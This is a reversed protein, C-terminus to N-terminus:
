KLCTQLIPRLTGGESRLVFTGLGPARQRGLWCNPTQTPKRRAAVSWTASAACRAMDRSASSTSKASSASSCFRSRPAVPAVPGGDGGDGSCGSRGAVASSVSPMSALLLDCVRDAVETAHQYASAGLEVETRNCTSRLRFYRFVCECCPLYTGQWRLVHFAPPLLQSDLAAIDPLQPFPSSSQLGVQGSPLVVVRPVKMTM